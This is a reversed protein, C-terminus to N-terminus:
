TSRNFPINAQNEPGFQKGDQTDNPNGSEVSYPQKLGTSIERQSKPVPKRYQKAM